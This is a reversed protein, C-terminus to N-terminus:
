GGLGELVSSARAGLLASLVGYVVLLTALCAVLAPRAPLDKALTLTQSPPRWAPSLDTANTKRRSRGIAQDRASVAVSQVPATPLQATYLEGTLEERLQRLTELGQVGGYKGKFGLCLCLTYVELVDLRQPDQSARIADLRRFFEEGAAFTGFHELQLPKGLWPEKVAQWRSTLM